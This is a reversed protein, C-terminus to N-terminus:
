FAKVIGAYLNLSTIISDIELKINEIFLSFLVVRYQSTKEDVGTM